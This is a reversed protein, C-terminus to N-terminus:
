TQGDQDDRRQEAGHRDGHEQDWGDDCCNDRDRQVGVAGNCHAGASRGACSREEDNRGHSPAPMKPGHHRRMATNQSLDGAALAIWPVASLAALGLMEALILAPEGGSSACPPSTIEM